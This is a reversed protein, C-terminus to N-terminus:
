DETQGLILDEAKSLLGVHGFPAGNEIVGLLLSEGCQLRIQLDRALRQTYPQNGTRHAAALDQAWSSLEAARRDLEGRAGYM